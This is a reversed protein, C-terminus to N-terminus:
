LRDEGLYGHTALSAEPRSLSYYGRKEGERVKVVPQWAIKLILSSRSEQPDPRRGAAPRGAPQMRRGRHTLGLHGGVARITNRSSSTRRPDPSGGWHAWCPCFRTPHFSGVPAPSPLRLSGCPTPALHLQFFRIAFERGYPCSGASLGPAPPWSAPFLSAWRDGLRVLYLRVARPSLNHM